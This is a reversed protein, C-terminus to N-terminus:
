VARRRKSEQKGNAAGYLGQRAAEAELLRSFQQRDAGSIVAQEHAEQLARPYGNCRACQDILTAHLRGIRAASSAWGPVEVRAIDGGARLYFFWVEHAALENLTEVRGARQSGARFLASRQGDGLLGAFLQGDSAPWAIGKAPSLARLSTVVDSARSGSVYACVSLGDGSLSLLDLIDRTRALVAKRVSEDVQRSDLDWPLLTGDLMLVVNGDALRERALHGGAELEAIDRLLNVGWGRGLTDGGRDDDDGPPEHEPGLEAHSDLLANCSMRYPLAVRGINIVYCQVPAFRDPEISSGDASVVTLPTFPPATFVCQCAEDTALAYPRPVHQMADEVRQNGLAPDGAWDNLAEGAAQLGADMAGLGAAYRSILDPLKGTLQEIRLTM